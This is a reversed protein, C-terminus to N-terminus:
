PLLSTTLIGNYYNLFSMLPTRSQCPTKSHHHITLNQEYKLVPSVSYCNKLIVSHRFLGRSNSSLSNSINIAQFSTSSFCQVVDDGVFARKCCLTCVNEKVFSFFHIELYLQFLLLSCIQSSNKLTLKLSGKVKTSSTLKVELFWELAPFPNYSMPLM